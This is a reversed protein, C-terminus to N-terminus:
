FVVVVFSLLGSFPASSHFAEATPVPFSGLPDAAEFQRERGLAMSLSTLRQGTEELIKM